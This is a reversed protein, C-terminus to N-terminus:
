IEIFTQRQRQLTPNEYAGLYSSKKSRFGGIM